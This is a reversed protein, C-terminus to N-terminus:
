RNQRQWREKGASWRCKMKEKERRAMVRLVVANTCPNEKLRPAKELQCARATQHFLIIAGPLTPRPQRSGVKYKPSQAMVLSAALLLFVAPKYVTCRGTESIRWAKDQLSLQFKSGGTLEERSAACISEDAARSMIQVESGDWEWPM